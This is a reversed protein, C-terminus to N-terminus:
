ILIHHHEYTIKIMLEKDPESSCIAESADCGRISHILSVLYTTNVLLRKITVVEPM